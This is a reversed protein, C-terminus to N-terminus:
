HAEEAECHSTYADLDMLADVQAPDSPEIQFLWGEELPSENIKEPADALAENFAVLKGSVPAYVSSTAKTSEVLCAEDGAEVAKGEEPFEVYVIDGLQEQAFDTIGVRRVAGEAEIWEHSDRYKLTKPDPM